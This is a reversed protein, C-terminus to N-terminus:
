PVIWTGLHQWGSNSGSLDAAYMYINKSGAYAAQFKVALSLSLTNGTLVAKTSALKISCQSNELTASTGATASVSAMGADNDLSVMNTAPQYSLLCSSAPDGFAATFWVWVSQLNSAGSTDSYQLTFTQSFRSGSTPTVSVATAVGPGAPVSWTGLKQWGRSAGLLDAAYMYISKAGAYGAQFTIAPSLTLTDGNLVATTTSMNVSCQSNTLTTSTGVLASSSATGADNDLYIQNTAPQYSLLCSNAANGFTATFWVWVSQLSSAGATDSYQLTFTQSAGSQGNPMVSVISPVASKSTTFSWVASSNTGSSNKAVVRWYYAIGLSLAGPAISTNATNSLFPPTPSTGFYVDYSTAGASGTWSLTPVISVGTAGNAPTPSSPAPVLSDTGSQTITFTNGAILLTGARQTGPNAPISYSVTGNGSGSAGGTVSIFNSTTAVSWLCGSSATVNVSAATAGSDFSASPSAIGYTCNLLGFVGVVNTSDNSSTAAAYVKGNAIMPTMYKNGAGFNDRGNAAQNSDYLETTLSAANYAHLIAPSSNEMAWVIANSSGNASISPTTGPYEFSASSNTSASGFSGGTYPYASLQQGVPGYYLTNNFWAPSSFVSGGLSFQQYIASDNNANFKGMNNRDVVYANGDKGAGVALERPHGLADSLTPLVMAGGSGLDQDHSSETVTNFMTFYDVVSLGGNSSVNMFANGYDGESPLGAANLSTDFTGNALLFYINGGPDVAPGAGAQWISGDSGNPTLDLVTVQSLTSENYGMIWASYPGADCHSAFSTYVIGNLLLLAAREKYQQPEFTTVGSNRTPFTGTIEIPGGFEETHTVLDIAHLRQHYNNSNDKTMAVLYITGHPGSALDIVPTSTIGIEPTVQSCGRNDSPNEGNLVSQSWLQTGTDADFAYLTDNETAVYVVNHTASAISLAPVYLPQADVQGDVPLTFRLGFDNFNVNAPSLITELLNQGTRANDNHWTLVSVQAMLAPMLLGCPILYRFVKM